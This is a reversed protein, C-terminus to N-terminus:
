DHRAWNVNRESVNSTKTEELNSIWNQLAESTVLTRRGVKCTKLAGSKIALYITSRGLGLLKSTETVSYALRDNMNIEHIARSVALSGHQRGALLL